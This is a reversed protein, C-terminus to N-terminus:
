DYRKYRENILDGVKILNNQNPRRTVQEEKTMLNPPPQRGLSAYGGGRKQPPHTKLVHERVKQISPMLHYINTDGTRYERQIFGKAELNRIHRGITSNGLGLNKAITTTAPFVNSPKNYDFWYSFLHDLVVAEITSLGLDDICQILCVPKMFFGMAMVEPSWRNAFTEENPNKRPKM